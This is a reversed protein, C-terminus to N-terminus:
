SAAGAAVLQAAAPERRAAGDRAPAERRDPVLPARLARFLSQTDANPLRGTGDHIAVAAIRSLGAHRRLLGVTAASLPGASRGLAAAVLWAGVSGRQPLRERIAAAAREARGVSATWETPRIEVRDRAAAAIREPVAVAIGDDLWRDLVVDLGEAWETSEEVWALRGSAHPVSRDLSAAWGLPEALRRLAAFTTVTEAPARGGASVHDFVIPLPRGGAAVQWAAVAERSQVVAAVIRPDALVARREALTATTAVAVVRGGAARVAAAALLLHVSIEGEFAVSGGVALGLRRLGAALRDIEAVADRWRRSVWVGRHKEVFAPQDARRAAAAVLRDHFAAEAFHPVHVTM